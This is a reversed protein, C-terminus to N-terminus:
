GGVAARDRAPARSLCELAVDVTRSSRRRLEVVHKSVDAALADRLDWTRDIAALLAGVSEGDIRANPPTGITELFDTVKPAYPLAFLPVGALAAFILVHLRMGIVLTLHRMLGLLERPAYRGTLVHAHQARMMRAIVAHSLRVDCAEMPIFLVDCEFRDAAFDAIHALVRHTAEADLGPAALGPERLSLGVLRRGRPIGELRLQTETFREAELLLAPDATVEVACDVDLDELIRSTGADRVTVADMLPLIERVLRQDEAYTLPGAGIAYAMTAVGAQHALRVERLYQRAEGDYLIGGGGLLLLDLTAIHEVSQKRALGRLPVVEEVAHHKRTHSAMRSFVTLSVEGLAGRLTAIMATLIAEDGANLGGYSGTIGITTM